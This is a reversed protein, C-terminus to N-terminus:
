NDRQAEWERSFADEQRPMTRVINDLSNRYATACFFLITAIVFCGISLYIVGNYNIIRALDGNAFLPNRLLM